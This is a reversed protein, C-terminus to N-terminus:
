ASNRSQEANAPVVVRVARPVLQVEVPTRGILEGDAQVLGPHESEVRVSRRATLHHIEKTSKRLRVLSWALGLYDRFTRAKVLYIELQGDTLTEPPGLIYPPKELLTMNSIMIEVARVIRPQGDVILTYRRVRLLNPRKMLPVLYALRGISKKHEAKTQRVVQPTVGVSVNSLFHRDGVKLADIETFAHDGALLDVAAQLKLPILLTRALDNGTGMPLVGLPVRSGVMGDVVGALTGDGGAVIVLSAGSECATRCIAGVDEKGTIEHIESSWGPPAFGRQLAERVAEAQGSRGSKPNLVVLVKRSETM